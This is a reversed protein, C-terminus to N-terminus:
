ITYHPNSITTISSIISVISLNAGLSANAAATASRRMNPTAIVNRRIIPVIIEKINLRENLVAKTPEMNPAHNPIHIPPQKLLLLVKPTIDTNIAEVTNVNKNKWM